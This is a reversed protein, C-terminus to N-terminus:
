NINKYVMLSITTIPPVIWGFWQTVLTTTSETWDMEWGIIPLVVAVIMCLGYFVASWAIINLIKNM